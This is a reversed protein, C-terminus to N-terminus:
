VVECVQSSSSHLFVAESGKTWGGCLTGRWGMRACLTAAAFGYAKLGSLHGPFDMTIADFDGCTAKLRAPRTDTPGYFRVVIAQTM